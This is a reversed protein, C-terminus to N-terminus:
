LRRLQRRRFGNEFTKFCRLTNLYFFKLTKVGTKAWGTYMRMDVLSDPSQNTILDYQCIGQADCTISFMHMVRIKSVVPSSFSSGM